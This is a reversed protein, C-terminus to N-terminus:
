RQQMWLEFAEKSMPKAFLYGQLQDCGLEALIRQQDSIEIGEAVTDMELEGAMAIIAACLNKSKVDNVVEDVFCKDIKLTSVPLRRLYSLSSYGTGFDDIAFRVGCKILASMGAVIRDLDELLSDEVIEIEFQNQLHPVTEILEVLWRQFIESSLTPITINASVVFDKGLSETWQDLTYVAKKIVWQELQVLVHADNAISLIEPPPIFGYEPHKWRVLAEAGVPLATRATLKPQFYLTLKDEAIALPLERILQEARRYQAKAASDAFGFRIGEHPLACSSVNEAIRLASRIQFKELSDVIVGVSIRPSIQNTGIQVPESLLKLIKTNIAEQNVGDCSDFPFHALALSPGRLRGIINSGNERLCERMRGALQFLIDDGGRRGFASNLYEFNEIELRVLICSMPTDASLSYETVSDIFTDVWLGGTVPDIQAGRFSRTNDILASSGRLVETRAIRGLKVLRRIEDKSFKRPKYDILCLTGLPLGKQDRLVAGAYFAIGPDGSVLPNFSFVPHSTADEVVLVEDEHLAHACFAESRPTESVDLGCRSIFWQRNTDVLSIVATPVGFIDAAFRTIRDFREEKPRDM